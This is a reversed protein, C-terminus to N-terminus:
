TKENQTDTSEWKKNRSFECRFGTTVTQFQKRLFISEGWRHARSNSLQRCWLIQKVCVHLDSLSGSSSM